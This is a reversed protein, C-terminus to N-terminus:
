MFVAQNHISWTLFERTDMLKENSRLAGKMFLVQYDKKLRSVYNCLAGFNQDTARTILNAVCAYNVDPEDSVMAGTPDMVIQDINPVKGLLNRFGVYEAARGENVLGSVSEYFDAPDYIKYDQRMVREWSRPTANSFRDPDFDFLAGIGAFRMYAVGMIDLGPQDVAWNCWDDLDPHQEVKMVRNGLQSVVRNAGAKDKTRNGTAMVRVGPHLGLEGVFRDLMLGALANQMMKEAQPMEDIVLLMPQDQLCALEYPPKWRTYEGRNDPIGLLDCPDRLSPRFIVVDGGDKHPRPDMGMDAAVSFAISTKGIGPPGELYIPLTPDCTWAHVMNNVISSYKM